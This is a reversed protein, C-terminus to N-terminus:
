IECVVSIMRYKDKETLCIGSLTIGQLGMQTKAFPLIENKHDLLIDNYIHVVDKNVRRNIPM